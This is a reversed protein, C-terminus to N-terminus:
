KQKQEWFKHFLDVMAKQSPQEPWLETGPTQRMAAALHDYLDPINKELAPILEKMSQRQTHGDYQCPNKLPHLGLEKGIQIIESERYYLLPRILTL